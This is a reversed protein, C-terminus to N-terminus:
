IGINTVITDWYVPCLLSHAWRTALGGSSAVDAFLSVRSVAGIGQGITGGIGGGVGGGMGRDMEGDDEDDSRGDIDGHNDPGKM